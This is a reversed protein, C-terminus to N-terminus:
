QKDRFKIRKIQKFFLFYINGIYLLYLNNVEMPFFFFFFYFLIYILVKSMIFSLFFSKTCLLICRVFLIM